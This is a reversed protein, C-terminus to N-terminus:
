SLAHGPLADAAPQHVFGPNRQKRELARRLMLLTFKPGELRLISEGHLCVTVSHEQRWRWRLPLYRLNGKGLTTIMYHSALFYQLIDRGADTSAGSAHVEMSGPLRAYQTPWAALTVVVVAAMSPAAPKLLYLLACIASLAAVNLTVCSFFRTKSQFPWLYRWLPHAKRIGSISISM